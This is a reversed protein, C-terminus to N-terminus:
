FKYKSLIDRNDEVASKYWKLSWSWEASRPNCDSCKDCNQEKFSHGFSPGDSDDYLRTLLNGTGQAYGHKLCVLLHMGGTSHMRLSQAIIGGPRYHVFLSECNRMISSPDYNKLGMDVIHGYESEPDDPDMGLNKAMSTFYAKQEEISLSYFDKNDDIDLIFKEISDLAEEFDSLSSLILKRAEQTAKPDEKLSTSMLLYLREIKFVDKTIVCYTMVLLAMSEHWFDLFEISEKSGRSNHIGKFLLVSAYIDTFLGALVHYQGDRTLRNCLEIIKQLSLSCERYLEHTQNNFILHEFSDSEFKSISHHTAHLQELQLKFKVTRFKGIAILRHGKSKQERALSVLWHCIKFNEELIERKVSTFPSTQFAQWYYLLAVFRDKAPVIPSKCIESAQQYVGTFDRDFLLNNLKQHHAKFLADGIDEINKQLSAPSVSPFRDVSEKLGKIHLYDWCDIVSGLLKNALDDNKRVLNNEVLLHVQISENGGTESAKSRLTEDNTIPLWYIKESSVEVVVLIVPIKFKFYYELRKLKLTFSLTKGKNIYTSREEGKIQVKFVSNKGLAKGNDDKLEIEGDIGFDNQDEQSRFIWSSPLNYEFIRGAETGIEGANM